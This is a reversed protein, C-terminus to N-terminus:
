RLGAGQQRFLWLDRRIGLTARCVGCCRYRPDDREHGCGHCKGATAWRGRMEAVRVANARGTMAPSPRRKVPRTLEGLTMAARPIKASM